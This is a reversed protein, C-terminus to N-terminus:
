QLARIDKVCFDFAHTAQDDTVVQWAIKIMQGKATEANASTPKPAWCEKVLDAFMFSNVGVKVPKTGPNCFEGSADEVKFRLKTPVEMGEIVFAFGKLSSGDFAMPDAGMGSTEDIPQNLNLGIAAGWFQGYCDTAPPMPTCTKDVKAVTGTICANADDFNETMGEGSTTDAYAFVAGQIGLVNTDAQIWGNTPTLPVGEPLPGSDSGGGGSGNGSGSTNNGSGSTNNGSGGNNGSGAVAIPGKGGDDENDADGSEGGGDCGAALSMLLALGAIRVVENTMGSLKVSVDHEPLPSPALAM